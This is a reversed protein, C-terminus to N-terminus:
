NPRYDDRAHEVIFGQSDLTRELARYETEPISGMAIDLIDMYKDLTFGHGALVTSLSNFKDRIKSSDFGLETKAAININVRKSM